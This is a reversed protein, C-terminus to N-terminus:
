WALVADTSQRTSEFEETSPLWKCHIPRHHSRDNPARLYVGGLNLNEAASSM